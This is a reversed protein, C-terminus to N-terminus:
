QIYQAGSVFLEDLFFQFNNVQTLRDNPVLYRILAQVTGASNIYSAISAAPVTITTATSIASGGYSKMLVYKGTSQNLLYVSVTSPAAAKGAFTLSLQSAQAPVLNTTFTAQVTAVDGLLPERVGTLAYGVGDIGTLLAASGQASTGEVVAPSLAVNDYPSVSTCPYVTVPTVAIAQALKQFNASGWGTTFDWFPTAQSLSGNPLVGNFGSTIDNWVDSRGNQQYITDQIRGLRKNGGLAKVDQLMVGFCGAWVPSAFSTGDYDFSLTGNLYFQYAGTSDGAANLAVDPVLRQNITTPVGKGKQWSPLVNFPVSETTWGGGGGPWAVESTRNGSSDTNAITGGVLLIEPDYDGYAFPELITGSDGTAKNYTMGQANMLLHVNHCSTATGADLNWGYSESIVDCLNDNQEKTLVDLISGGGDYIRFTSLPAMGLVMQIDLDGEGSPTGSGAGGDITVVTINSGVGGAPTPLNFQKYYLPVTSLLYGDWNSIGINEGLGQYGLKWLPAV